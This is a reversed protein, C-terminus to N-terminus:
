YSLAVGRVMAESEADLSATAEDLLIPRPNKILARAITVRQREGASLLADREGTMTDYGQPM